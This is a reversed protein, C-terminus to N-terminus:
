RTEMTHPRRRSDATEGTGTRQPRARVAPRMRALAVPRQGDLRLARGRRAPRQPRPTCAGFANLGALPERMLERDHCSTSRVGAGIRRPRRPVATRRRRTRPDFGSRRAVTGQEPCRTWSSVEGDGRDHDRGTGCGCGYADRRPEQRDPRRRTALARPRRLRLVAAVLYRFGDGARQRGLRRRGARAPARHGPPARAAPELRCPRCAPPEACSTSGSWTARPTASPATASGTRSTPRSRSSRPAAPRCGSSPRRRPRPHGAPHDAYTGKAMM